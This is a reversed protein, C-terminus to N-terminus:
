RFSIVYTGCTGRIAILGRPTRVASGRSADRNLDYDPRRGCSEPRRETTFIRKANTLKRSNRNYPSPRARGTLGIRLDGEERVPSLGSRERERRTVPLAGGRRPSAAVPRAGMGPGGPAAEPRSATCAGVARRRRRVRRALRSRASSRDVCYTLLYFMGVPLTCTALPGDGPM